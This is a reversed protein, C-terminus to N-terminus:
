SSSKLLNVLSSNISKTLVRSFSCFLYNTTFCTNNRIILKLSMSTIINNTTFYTIYNNSYYNLKTFSYRTNDPKTCSTIYTRIKSIRRITTTFCSKKTWLTPFFM